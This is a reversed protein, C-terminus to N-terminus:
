QHMLPVVDYTLWNGFIKRGAQQAPESLERVRGLDFDPPLIGSKKQEEALAELIDGTLEPHLQMTAARAEGTRNPNASQYVLMENRHQSYGLEAIQLGPANPKEGVVENNSEFAYITDGLGDTLPDDRGAPTLNVEVIGVRKNALKETGGALLQHTFCIGMVPTGGQRARELFKATDAMWPQAETVSLGSGGGIIGDFGEFGEPLEGGEAVHITTINSPPLGTAEAIWTSIPALGMKKIRDTPQPDVFLLRPTRASSANEPGPRPGADVIRAM